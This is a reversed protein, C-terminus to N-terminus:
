MHGGVLVTFEDILIDNSSGAFYDRIDYKISFFIYIYKTSKGMLLLCKLKGALKGQQCPLLCVCFMFPFKITCADDKMRFIKCYKVCLCIDM